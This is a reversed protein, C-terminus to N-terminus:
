LLLRKWRYFYMTLYLRSFSASNLVYCLLFVLLSVHQRTTAGLVALFPNTEAEKSVDLIVLVVEIATATVSAVGAPDQVRVFIEGKTRLRTPTARHTTMTMAAPTTQITAFTWEEQLNM